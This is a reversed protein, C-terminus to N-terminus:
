TEWAMAPERAMTCHLITFGEKGLSAAVAAWTGPRCLLTMSGGAGAGNIMAGAAGHRGAVEEVELPEGYDLIHVSVGPADRM